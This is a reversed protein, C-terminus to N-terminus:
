ADRLVRDTYGLSALAARIVAVDDFSERSSGITRTTEHGRGTVLLVDGPGAEFVAQEIARRGDLEVDVHAHDATMAGLLMQEVIAAPDERGPDDSTFTVRDADLAVHGIEPRKYRDKGGRCGVVLRVRSRPSAVTRAFELLAALAGPTHAYDVMALFPQGADVRQSRGPVAEAHAIGDVAQLPPVGLLTAILLAAAINTANVRGPVPARVVTDLGLGRVEVTTGTLDTELLRVMVDASPHSGFTRVPIPAQVARRRGWADDICVVGQQTMAPDFLRAKAAFYQEVTGHYDLHESTLNLWAAVAIRMGALRDQDLGQSSAEMVACDAGACAMEALTQQLRWAPPTTMSGGETREGFRTGLTGIMGPRRGGASLAHWALHSTTTKGNTGTVAAVELARCPEGHLLAAAVGVLPRTFAARLQPIPADVWREALVAAAGRRIAEGIHDHGDHRAGRVACFLWGPHVASSDSTVGFVQAEGRRDVGLREAMLRLSTGAIAPM